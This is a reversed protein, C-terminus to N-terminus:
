WVAMNRSWLARLCWTEVAALRPSWIISMTKTHLSFRRALLISSHTRGKLNHSCFVFLLKSEDNLGTSWMLMWSRKGSVGFCMKCVIQFKRTSSVPSMKSLREEPNRRYPKRTDFFIIGGLLAREYLGCIHSAISDSTLPKRPFLRKFDNSSFVYCGISIPEWSPKHECVLWGFITILLEFSKNYGSSVAILEFPEHNM